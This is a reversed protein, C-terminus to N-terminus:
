VRCVAKPFFCGNERDFLFLKEKRYEQHVMLPRIETRPETVLGAGLETAVSLEAM